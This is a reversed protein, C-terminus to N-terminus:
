RKGNLFLDKKMNPFCSLGKQLSILPKWKIIESAKKPNAIVFDKKEKSLGKDIIKPVLGM